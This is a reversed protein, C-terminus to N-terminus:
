FKVKVALYSELILAAAVADERSKIKKWSKGMMRMTAIAEKTTLTEEVFIVPIDTKKELEKGFNKVKGKIKGEPLGVVIRGVRYKGALRVIKDWFADKNDVKVVGIPEVVGKSEGWALGLKRLGYDIALYVM